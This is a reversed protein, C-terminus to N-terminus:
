KSVSLTALVKEAKAFVNGDRWWGRSINITAGALNLLSSEKQIM